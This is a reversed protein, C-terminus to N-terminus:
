TTRSRRLKWIFTSARSEMIFTLRMRLVASCSMVRSRQKRIGRFLRLFAPIFTVSLVTKFTVWLGFGILM